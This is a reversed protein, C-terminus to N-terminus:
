RQVDVAEMSMLREKGAAVAAAISPFGAQSEEVVEGGYNMIRWRWEPNRPSSIAVVHM